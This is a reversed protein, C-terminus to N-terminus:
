VLSIRFSSNPMSDDPSVSHALSFHAYLQDLTVIVAMALLFLLSGLLVLPFQLFCFISM